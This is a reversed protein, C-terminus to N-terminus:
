NGKVVNNEKKFLSELLSIVESRRNLVLPKEDEAQNPNPQYLYLAEDSSHLFLGNPKLIRRAEKLLEIVSDEPNKYVQWKGDILIKGLVDILLNIEIVDFSHDPFIKLFNPDTLDIGSFHEYPEQKLDGIDVGTVEFGLEHM